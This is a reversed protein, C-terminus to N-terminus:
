GQAFDEEAEIAAFIKERWAPRAALVRAAADRDFPAPEQSGGRTFGFWDIVCAALVLDRRRDTREVVRQAGAETALDEAPEERRSAAERVDALRVAREAAAYPRSGAGLVRFGVPSGDERKGVVVEFPEEAGALIQDIDFSM